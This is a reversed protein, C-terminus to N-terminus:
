KDCVYIDTAGDPIRSIVSFHKKLATSFETPSIWRFSTFHPTEGECMQIHHVKDDILQYLECYVKNNIVYRKTTPTTPPKTNFTNFVFKGTDTLLASVNALAGDSLWYNVAQQCFAIDYRGDEVATDIDGYMDADEIKSNIVWYLNNKFDPHKYLESCEATSPVVPLMKKAPEVICLRKCGLEIARKSLRMGGAGIDVINKGKVGGAANLLDDVPRGFYVQYLLEYKERSINYSM